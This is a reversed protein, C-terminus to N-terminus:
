CCAHGRALTERASRISKIPCGRAFRERPSPTGVYQVEKSQLLSCKPIKGWYDDDPVLKDDM